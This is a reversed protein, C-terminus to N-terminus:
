PTPTKLYHVRNPSTCYSAEVYLFGDTIFQVGTPSNTYTPPSYYSYDFIHQHGHLKSYLTGVYGYLGSCNIDQYVTTAQSARALETIKTYRYSDTYRSGPINWAHASNVGSLLVILSLILKNLM